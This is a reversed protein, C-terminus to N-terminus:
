TKEGSKKTQSQQKRYLNKIIFYIILYLGNLLAGYFLGRCVVHFLYYGESLYFDRSIGENAYSPIYYIASNIFAFLTLTIIIVVSFNLKNIFRLIVM